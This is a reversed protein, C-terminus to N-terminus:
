NGSTASGGLARCKDEYKAMASRLNRNVRGLHSLYWIALFVMLGFAVAVAVLDAKWIGYIAIVIPPLFYPSFDWWFHIRSEDANLFQRVADQEDLTLVQFV